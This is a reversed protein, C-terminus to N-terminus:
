KREKKVAIAKSNRIRVVNVKFEYKEALRRVAQMAASLNGDEITHKIQVDYRQYYVRERLERWKTDRELEFPKRHM